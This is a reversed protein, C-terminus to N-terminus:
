RVRETPQFTPKHVDTASEPKASSKNQPKQQSGVAAWSGQVRGHSKKNVSMAKSCDCYLVIVTVCKHLSVIIYM